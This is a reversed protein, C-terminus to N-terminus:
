ITISKIKSKISNVKTTVDYFLYVLEKKLAKYTTTNNKSKAQNMLKEKERIEYIKLKLEQSFNRWLYKPFQLM